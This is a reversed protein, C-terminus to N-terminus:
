PASPFRNDRKNKWAVTLNGYDTDSRENHRRPSEDTVNITPVNSIGQYSRSTRPVPSRNSHPAFYPSSPVAFEDRDPARKYVKPPTQPTTRDPSVHGDSMGVYRDDVGNGHSQRGRSAPIIEEKRPSTNEEEEDETAFKIPQAIGKVLLQGGHHLLLAPWVLYDFKDEGSNTFKRFREHDFAAGRDLKDVFVLPPDQICMSWCIQVCKKTYQQTIENSYRAPDIFTPLVHDVFIKQLPYLCEQATTRQYLKALQAIEQTINRQKLRNIIGEDDMWTASPYLAEGEINQLQEKAVDQCFSYSARLIRQLTVVIEIQNWGHKKFYDYTEAWESDFLRVYQEKIKIVRRSDPEQGRRILDKNQLQRKLLLIETDKDRLQEELREIDSKSWSKQKHTQVSAGARFKLLNLETKAEEILRPDLGSNTPLKRFLEDLKSTHLDM